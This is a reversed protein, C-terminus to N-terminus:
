SFADIGFSNIASDILLLLLPVTLVSIATAVLCVMGYKAAQARCIAGRTMGLSYYIRRDQESEFHETIMSNAIGILSVAASIMIIYGLLSAYLEVTEVTDELLEARTEVRAGRAELANAMGQFEPSDKAIDSRICLLDNHEGIYSADLFAFNVGIEAVELVTFCFRETEYTLTVTDGVGAGLLVALGRSLIIEDGEPLKSLVIDENLYALGEETVSIGLAVTNKETIMEHLLGLRYVGDVGESSAAIAESETDAGIAVYDFDSVTEFLNLNGEITVLCMTIAIGLSLLISLMRCAHVTHHSRSISGNALFLRSPVRKCRALIASIGRSLFSLILPFSFYLGGVLGAVAFISPLVSMSADVLLAVPAAIAAVALSAVAPVLAEKPKSRQPPELLDSVTYKGARLESIAFVTLLIIPAGVVGVGIDALSLYDQGWSFNFLRYIPRSLPIAIVVAIAVAAAAYLSYEIANLRLLDRRSAGCIMFLATDKRRKRRIMEFSTAIVLASIIVLLSTAILLIAGTAQAFFDRGGVNESEKILLKDGFYSAGALLAHYDDILAKDHIKIRLVNCPKVTDSLAGFLPNEKALLGSIASVDFLAQSEALLGDDLAIAQVTFSLTDSLLDLVVTDGVSLGRSRAFDASLIISRDLEKETFAGYEVYKIDYFRNAEALDVASLSLLHDGGNARVLGSFSFEGLVEGGDGIIEEARSAFLLREPSQSSLTVTIDSIYVGANRYHAHESRLNKIINAALILAATAVSLALIVLLPQYVSRRIGRLIHRVYLRM